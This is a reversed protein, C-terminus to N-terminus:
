KVKVEILGKFGEDPSYLKKNVVIILESALEKTEKLFEKSYIVGNFAKNKNIFAELRKRNYDNIYSISYKVSSNSLIERAKDADNMLKEFEDKYLLHLTIYYSPKLYPTDEPPYSFLTLEQLYEVTNIYFTDGLESLKEIISEDYVQNILGETNSSDIVKVSQIINRSRNMVDEDYPLSNDVEYVEAEIVERRVRGFRQILSDIPALETIVKKFDYDIGVEATQTAILTKGKKLEELVREKDDKRMLSHLLLAGKCKEKMKIAREITNVFIVAGEECEAEFIPKNVYRVRVERKVNPTPLFVVKGGYKDCEEKFLKMMADPLTASSFVVIGGASVISCIVKSMVRPGLFAQDQILHAEDFVLYSSTLLGAPMLYRGTEYDKDRWTMVRKATFGYFASDVTTLTIVATYLYTKKLVDGYDSGVTPKPSVLQSYVNARDEMQKLLANVPEVLYMRPAFWERKEFQYLFPAFLVETKGFGTPAKLIFLIGQDSNLSEEYIKEALQAQVNLRSEDPVVEKGKYRGWATVM